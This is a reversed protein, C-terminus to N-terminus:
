AVSTLRDSVEEIADAAAVAGGAAAYAEAVREAGARLTLAQEVADRLRRATLRRAPLHVGAAASKVRQATEFQDRGFPVVVVPVGAGLAKQTIGM